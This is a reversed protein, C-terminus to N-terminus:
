PLRVFGALDREWRFLARSPLFESSHARLATRRTVRREAWNLLAPGGVPDRARHRGCVHCRCSGDRALGDEAGLAHDPRETRVGQREELALRM